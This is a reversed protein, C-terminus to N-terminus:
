FGRIFTEEEEQWVLHDGDEKLFTAGGAYLSEEVYIYKNLEEYDIESPDLAKLVGTERDLTCLFATEKETEYNYIHVDYWGAAFTVSLIGAENSWSERTLGMDVGTFPLETGDAEDQWLLGARNETFTFVGSTETSGTMTDKQGPGKLTEGELTCQYTWNTYEPLGYLEVLVEYNEQGRWFLTLLRNKAYWQTQDLPDQVPTFVVESGDPKRWIIELYSGEYSCHFSAVGKDAQDDEPMGTGISVKDGTEPDERCLYSLEKEGDRIAIKYYGDQWVAEMQLGESEWYTGDFDADVAITDGSLDEKPEEAPDPAAESFVGTVLLLMLALTLCFLKKMRLADERM